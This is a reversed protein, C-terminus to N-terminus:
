VHAVNPSFGHGGHGEGILEVHGNRFNADRINLYVTSAQLTVEEKKMSSQDTESPQKPLQPSPNIIPLEQPPKVLEGISPQPTVGFDPMQFTPVDKKPPMLLSTGPQSLFANPLNMVDQPTIKPSERLTEPSEKAYPNFRTVSSPKAGFLLSAGSDVTPTKIPSEKTPETVPPSAPSAPEVTSTQPTAGFDPMQFTEFTPINKKVGPMLSQGWSSLKNSLNKKEQETVVPTKQPEKTPTGTPSASPDTTASAAREQSLRYERAAKLEAARDPREWGIFRQIGRFLGIKEPKGHTYDILGARALDESTVPTGDETRIRTVTHRMIEEEDKSIKMKPPGSAPKGVTSGSTTSGSSSGSSPTVDPSPSTTPPSTSASVGSGTVKPTKADVAMKGPAEKDGPKREELTIGTKGQKELIEQAEKPTMQNYRDEGKDIMSDFTAKARELNGLHTQLLEVNKKRNEDNLTDEKETSSNLAGINTRVNQIERAVDDRYKITDTLKLPNEQKLTVDSNYVSEFTNIRDEFTANDGKKNKDLEKLYGIASGISQQQGLKEASVEITDKLAKRVEETDASALNHVGLKESLNKRDTDRKEEYFKNTRELEDVEEKLDARKIEGTDTGDKTVWKNKDSDYAKGADKKLKAIKAENAAIITESNTIDGLELQYRDLGSEMAIRAREKEPAEFYRKIVTNANSIATDYKEKNKTAGRDYIVPISKSKPDKPDYKEYKARLNVLPGGDLKSLVANEVITELETKQKEESLTKMRATASELRDKNIDSIKGSLAAEVDKHTVGKTELLAKMFNDRENIYIDTMGNGDNRYVKQRTGDPMEKYMYDNFWQYESKVKNGQEDFLIISSGYQFSSEGADTVGAVEEEVEKGEKDKRKFYWKNAKDKDNKDEPKQYANYLVPDSLLKKGNNDKLVNGAEDKVVDQWAAMVNVNPMVEWEMKGDKGRQKVRTVKTVPDFHYDKQDLKVYEIGGSGDKRDQAFRVDLSNQEAKLFGSLDSDKSFNTNSDAVSQIHSRVEVKKREFTRMSNEREKQLEAIRGEREERTLGSSDDMNKYNLIQTDLRHINNSMQQLQERDRTTVSDKGLELFGFATEIVSKDSINVQKLADETSMGSKRANKYADTQAAMVNRVNAMISTSFLNSYVDDIRATNESDLKVRAQDEVSEKSFIQFAGAANTGFQNMFVRNSQTSLMEKISTRTRNDNLSTLLKTASAKQEETGNKQMDEAQAKILELFMGGHDDIDLGKKTRIDERKKRSFMATAANRSMEQFARADDHTLAQDTGGLKNQLQSAIISGGTAGLQDMTPATQLTWRAQPNTSLNDYLAKQNASGNQLFVRSSVGLGSQSGLDMLDVDALRVSKRVTEGTGKDVYSFETEGRQVADIYSELATGKIEQGSERLSDLMRLAAGYRNGTESGLFGAEAQSQKMSAEEVTLSDWAGQMENNRRSTLDNAISQQTLYGVFKRNTGTMEAMMAATQLKGEVYEDGQGMEKALAYTQRIMHRMQTLDKQNLQNLNGGSFSTFTEMLKAPSANGSTMSEQLAKLAKEYESYRSEVSKLRQTNQVFKRLDANDGLAQMAETIGILDALPAKLAELDVNEGEFKRALGHKALAESSSKRTREAIDEKKLFEEAQLQESAENVVKARYINSHPVEHQTKSVVYRFASADRGTAEWLKTKLEELKEKDKPVLEHHSAQVNREHMALKGYESALELLEPKINKDSGYILKNDEFGKKWAGRHKETVYEKYLPNSELATTTSKDIKKGNKIDEQIKLLEDRHEESNKVSYLTKMLSDAGATDKIEVKPSSSHLGELGADRLLATVEKSTFAATEQKSEAIEQKKKASVWGGTDRLVGGLARLKDAAQGIKDVAKTDLGKTTNANLLETVKPAKASLENDSGIEAALKSSTDRFEKIAKEREEGGLTKSKLVTQLRELDDVYRNIDNRRRVKQHAAQVEPSSSASASVPKQTFYEQVTRARDEDSLPMEEKGNGLLGQADLYSYFVGTDVSNFKRESRKGPANYFVDVARKAYAMREGPTWRSHDDHRMYTASNFAADYIGIGSGARGFANEFAQPAVTSLTTIGASGLGSDIMRRFRQKDGSTYARGRQLAIRDGWETFTNYVQDNLVEQRGRSYAKSNDYADLAYNFAKNDLHIPTKGTLASIGMTAYWPLSANRFNAYQYYGRRQNEAFQLDAYSDSQFRGPRYMGLRAQHLMEQMIPSDANYIDVAPDFEDM